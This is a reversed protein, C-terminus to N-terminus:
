KFEDRLLSMPLGLYRLVQMRRTASGHFVANSELLESDKCIGSFGNDEYAGEIIAFNAKM